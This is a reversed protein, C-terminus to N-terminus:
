RERLAKEAMRTMPKTLYALVSKEGTRVDVDAVMGPLIELERAGHRLTSADTRVRIVYFTEGREDTVSDAAVQEVKGQLGGYLSFDYASLKVLASQGPRLFAIDQPRIRAEVLLTDDVPVIEVLDHGPQVVQGPTTVHVTKVIGAVPATVTTRNLRDATARAAETLAALEVRTANLEKLAENRFASLREGRREEAELRASALRPLSLRAAELAGSTENVKGEIALMEARSVSRSRELPQMIALEEKALSLAKELTVIKAEVEVIEQARQAAQGDFAALAAALERRRTAYHERQRVVLEPRRKELDAPFDLERQQGEAQLRAIVATLGDIREQAEGLSSGAQTPDIRLIVDGAKVRAGERVLVERVIGGELNQILQLRSAPVVRGQGTTVEQIPALAAWVVFAALLLVLSLMLSSLGAAPPQLLDASVSTPIGVPRRAAPVPQAPAAFGTAVPTAVPSQM